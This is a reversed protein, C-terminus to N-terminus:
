NSLKDMVKIKRAAEEKWDRL